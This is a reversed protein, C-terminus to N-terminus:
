RRIGTEKFNLKLHFSECGGEGKSGDLGGLGVVAVAVAVTVDLGARGVIGPGGGAACGGGGSPVGWVLLVRWGLDGVLAARGPHGLESAASDSASVPVIHDRYRKNRSTGEVCDSRQCAFIENRRQLCFSVSHCFYRSRCRRRM